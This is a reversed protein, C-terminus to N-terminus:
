DSEINWLGTELFLPNLGKTKTDFVPVIITRPVRHYPEGYQNTQIAYHSGVENCELVVQAGDELVEILQCPRGEYHAEKGILSRLRKLIPARQM